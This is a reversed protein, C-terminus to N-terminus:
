MKNLVNRVAKAAFKKREGEPMDAGMDRVAQMKLMMAELEQVDKDGVENKGQEGGEGQGEGEEEQEEARVADHIGWMEMQAEAAEEGFGLSADNDFGLDDLGEFDDGGAGEWENAELVEKLRALGVKEGFNNRGEEDQENEGGEAGGDQVEKKRNRGGTGEITGDIWEWGGWYRGWFM